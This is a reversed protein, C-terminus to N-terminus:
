ISTLCTWTHGAWPSGGFTSRSRSSAFALVPLTEKLGLGFSPTSRWSRRSPTGAGARLTSGVIMGAPDGNKPSYLQTEIWGDGFTVEARHDFAWKVFGVALVILALTTLLVPLRHLLDDSPMLLIITTGVIVVILVVGRYDRSLGMFYLDSSEVQGM